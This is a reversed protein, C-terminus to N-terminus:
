QMSNPVLTLTCGNDRQYDLSKGHAIVLNTPPNWSVGSTLDGPQGLNDVPFNGNAGGAVMMGYHDEVAFKVPIQGSSNQDFIGPYNAKM